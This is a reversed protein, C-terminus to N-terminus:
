WNDTRFSSAPLGDNNYLEGTVWDKYAYRVAVPKSVKDSQVIVQNAKIEANAQYFKQDEGAIEFLTLKKRFSTLYPAHDFTVIAKNGEIAVSRYDPSYYQIGKIEYTKGLAWYSLRMALTTKDMSHIDNEMGVDIAPVMGSNPIVKMANLQAERLRPGNRTKDSSAFPAIQVYYFPIDGLGWQKRWDAVMAPFLKEYRKAEHRNSEGQYWIFGKIAYGAVPAVMGNYLATPEKHPAQVTDLSTPIKVEPFSALSGSRMWAEIMTGGISSLILGVPVKLRKQLIQGFQFALASYERAHESTSLNWQGKPDEVPSLSSARGVRYLRLQPNDANLIIEAANLVPSSNGRLPMEMNSQGSCFWVEGILVNKLTLKEGDSISIDFPGGATPTSVMQKWHGNNDAKATYSKKNWSTVIVVGAGSNSRGWIAVQSKQQLVMNDGFIGPLSIKGLCLLTSLLLTLSCTIRPMM